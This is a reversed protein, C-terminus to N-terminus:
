PKRIQQEIFLAQEPALLGRVLDLTKGAKLFLKVAYSVAPVFETDEDTM